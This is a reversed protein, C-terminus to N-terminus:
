AATVFLLIEPPKKSTIMLYTEALCSSVLSITDVCGNFRHKIGHDVDRVTECYDIM